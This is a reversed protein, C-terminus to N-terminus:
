PASQPGWSREGLPPYKAAAAFRQADAAGNIMPAIIGEAGFDLARSVLAFDELPVRVLPSAGGAHM